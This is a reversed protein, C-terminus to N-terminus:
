GPKEKLENVSQAVDKVMSETQGMRAGLEVLKLDIQHLADNLTELKEIREAMGEMEKKMGAVIEPLTAM